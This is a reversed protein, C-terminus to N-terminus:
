KRGQQHARPQAPARARKAQERATGPPPTHQPLAAVAARVVGGGGRRGLAGHPAVTGDGGRVTGWASGRRRVSGDAHGQPVAAGRASRPFGPDAVPTWPVGAPCAPQLPPLLARTPARCRGRPWPSPIVAWGLPLTRGASVRGAWGGEWPGLRTPALAGVPQG